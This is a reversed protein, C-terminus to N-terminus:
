RNPFDPKRKELFAQLGEAAERGYRAKNINRGELDIQEALQNERASAIETKIVAIAERAGTACARALDLAAEIAHGDECLTNVAGAAHLRAASVPRGLMCLESVLQRPLSDTLFHTAGGDPTLGIKVYAVTFRAANSAVVMDCALALSVGLGAAGGEVAAIVPTPCNRIALIMAALADTNRSVESLNQSRSEQLAGVNGGSSFFGGAGTLVVARIAADNGADVIIARLAEYQARGISNRTRPGDLTVLRINGDIIESRVATENEHM